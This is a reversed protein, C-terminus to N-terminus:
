VYEWASWFVCLGLAESRIAMGAFSALTFVTRLIV